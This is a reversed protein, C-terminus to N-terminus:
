IFMPMICGTATVTTSPNAITVVRGRKPILFQVSPGGAPVVLHPTASVDGVFDGFWVFVQGTVCTIIITNFPTQSYDLRNFSTPQPSVALNFVQQYDCDTDGVYKDAMRSIDRQMQRDSYADAPTVGQNGYEGPLAGFGTPM